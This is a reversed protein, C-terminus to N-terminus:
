LRASFGSFYYLSKEYANNVRQKCKFNRLTKKLLFSTPWPNITLHHRKQNLNPKGSSFDPSPQKASSQNTSSGDSPSSSLSGRRNQSQNENQQNNRKVLYEYIHHSIQVPDRPDPFFKLKEPSEPPFPESYIPENNNDRDLHDNSRSQFAPHHFDAPTKMHRFRGSSSRSRFHYSKPAVQAESFSGHRSRRNLPLAPPPPPLYAPPAPKPVYRTYYNQQAVPFYNFYPHEELQPPFPRDDIRKSSRGRQHPNYGTMLGSSTSGGSSSNTSRFGFGFKM